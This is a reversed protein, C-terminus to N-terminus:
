IKIKFTNLLEPIFTQYTPWLQETTNLTVTWIDNDNGKVLAVFVRMNVGQQNTRIEFAKVPYGNIVTDQINEIVADKIISKVEYEPFFKDLTQDSSAYTIAFYSRFNIKKTAEEQPQEGGNVVMLTVGPMPNDLKYWGYPLTIEFNDTVIKGDETKIIPRADKGANDSSNGCGNLPKESSPNGHKVWVGDKCLWTDEDSSFRIALVIGILIIALFFLFYLKKNKM